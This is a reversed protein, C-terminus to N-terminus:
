TWTSSIEIVIKERASKLINYLKKFAPVSSGGKLMYPYKEHREGTLVCGYSDSTFNGSHLLIGEFFPVNLIRPMYGETFALAHRPNKKIKETYKPSPSIRIEYVGEPICTEGYVKTEKKGLVGMLDRWQDELTNCIFRDKNGENLYLSGATYTKGRITRILRIKM